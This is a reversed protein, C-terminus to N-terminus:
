ACTHISILTMCMHPHLHAGHVHTSPSSCWACTHISTLAMCTHPHLHADHVHTSPSSHWARTHISILTMCTHPHLHAGHVHTPTPSLGTVAPTATPNKFSELDRVRGHDIDGLWSQKVSCAVSPFKIFPFRLHQLASFM